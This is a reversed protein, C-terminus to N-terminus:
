VVASQSFEEDYLNKIETELDGELLIEWKQSDEIFSLFSHCNCCRYVRQNPISSLLTLKTDKTPEGQLTQCSCRKYMGNRTM